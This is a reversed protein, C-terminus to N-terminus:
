AAAARTKAAKRDSYVAELAEVVEDVDSEGWGDVGAASNPPTVPSQANLSLCRDPHILDLHGTNASLIVPVGSAMCEMAVLNTGGECRNPFLAVDANRIVEAMLHNPVIGHDVFSGPPLGNNVLWSSIDLAGNKVAPASIVNGRLAMARVLPGPYLNQWSTALLADPHRAHFTRFAAVVIDQAKRYELKGGSFVVFRDGFAPASSSPYFLSPDIGQRVLTVNAIGQRRLIDANWTSGTVIATYEEARRIALANPPSYEMFVVGIDPTGVLHMRKAANNDGGTQRLRVLQNGLPHLVPFPCTVKRGAAGGSVRAFEYYQARAAELVTGQPAYGGGSGIPHVLSVPAFRRGASLAMALNIGYVGWGTAPSLQWGIGLPRRIEKASSDM